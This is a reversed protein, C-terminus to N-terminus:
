SVISFKQEYVLPNPDIQVCTMRKISNMRSINQRQSHILEYAIIAKKKQRLVHRENREDKSDSDEHQSRTRACASEDQISCAWMLLKERVM